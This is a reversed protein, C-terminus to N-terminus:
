LQSPVKKSNWTDASTGTGAARAALQREQHTVYKYADQNNTDYALCFDKHDATNHCLMEIQLTGGLEDEKRDLPEQPWGAAVTM